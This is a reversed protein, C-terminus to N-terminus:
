NYVLFASHLFGLSIRKIKKYKVDNPIDCQKEDNNGFLVTSGDEFLLASHQAGLSIRKIKKNKVDNPIDCQKSGNAGFM